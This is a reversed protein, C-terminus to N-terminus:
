LHTTLSDSRPSNARTMARLEELRIKFLISKRDAGQRVLELAPQGPGVEINALQLLIVQLDAILERVQRQEPRGLAATLVNAEGVLERSIRRQRTYTDASRSGGDQNIIGQLLVKSRELYAQTRVSVSDEEPAPASALAPPAAAPSGFTFLTRGLYVGFAVLVVAAAAYIWAMRLPRSRRTGIREEIGDWAHELFETSPEPRKRLDMIKKTSALAAYASACGACSRLHREVEAREEADAGEYLLGVFRERCEEHTM